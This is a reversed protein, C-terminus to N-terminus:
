FPVEATANEARTREIIEEETLGADGAPISAVIEAYWADAHQVVSRIAAEHTTQTEFLRKNRPAYKEYDQGDYTGLDIVLVRTSKDFHAVVTARIYCTRRTVDPRGDSYLRGWAFEYSGAQKVEDFIRKM